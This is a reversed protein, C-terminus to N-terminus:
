QERNYNRITAMTRTNMPITFESTDTNESNIAIWVYAQTNKAKQNMVGHFQLLNIDSKEDTLYYPGRFDPNNCDENKDIYVAVRRPHSPISTDVRTTYYRCHNDAGRVLLINSMSMDSPVLPNGISNLVAFNYVPNGNQTVTQGGAGGAIKLPGNYSYEVQQAIEQVTYRINQSIDRNVRIERQHRNSIGFSGVILVVTSAFISAAILLEILTFGKQKQYIKEKM